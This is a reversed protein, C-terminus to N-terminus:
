VLREGGNVYRAVDYVNAQVYQTSTEIAGRHRALRVDNEYIKMKASYLNGNQTMAYCMEAAMRSAFAQTFLSDYESPNDARYIYLLNFTDGYAMINNAERKWGYGYVGSYWDMDDTGLVHVCDVPLPFYSLDTPFLPGTTSAALVARRIAFKWAGDKLVADRTDDYLISALAAETKNDSLATIFNNSGNKALALNVIQAKSNAM